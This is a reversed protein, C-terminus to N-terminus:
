DTPQDWVEGALEESSKADLEVFQDGGPVPQFIQLQEFDRAMIRDLLDKREKRLDKIEQQYLAILDNKGELAKTNMLCTVLIKDLKNHIAKRFM